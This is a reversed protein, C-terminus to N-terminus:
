IYHNMKRKIKKIKERLYQRHFRKDFGFLSYKYAIGFFVSIASFILLVPILKSAISSSSTAEIIEFPGPAIEIEPFSSIDNSGNCNDSIYKKLNNYDTSLSHLVNKYSDSKNKSGENLEKYKKDFEKANESCNECKKNKESCGNYMKCLIEFTKYFNSIDKIDMNMLYKKKDIFEKNTTNDKCNTIKENYHAHTKIHNTYFDNLKTDSNQTKQNLIYSLWLIAYEALKGSEINEKNNGIFMNILGIFASSVKQEDNNCKGTEGGKVPPCYEDFAGGSLTYNQSQPDFKIVGDAYKITRYVSNSM